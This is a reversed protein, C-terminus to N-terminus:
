PRAARAVWLEGNALTHTLASTTLVVVLADSPKLGATSGHLMIRPAARALDPDAYVLTWGQERCVYALFDALSRGEIDFAPALSEVWAWDQGYPAAPRTATHGHRLTLETGSRTSSVEAGRHVEVVGSRVRVRLSLEDTRIEFQTGVNRVLGLPTEIALAASDPGSDVYVAGTELAVRDPSVLRARSTRDFRLSAGNTLRVAMRGDAGTEVLDGRQTAEGEVREVKAVSVSVTAVSAPVSVDRQITLRAVLITAAAM